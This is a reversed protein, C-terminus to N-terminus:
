LPEEKTQLYSSSTKMKNLSISQKRTINRKPPKAKRIISTLDARITDAEETTMGTLTTKIKAILDITPLAAPTVLFNMENELLEREDETINYTSLNIIWKSKDITTATQKNIEKQQNDKRKQYLTNCKKLQLEKTKELEHKYTKSHIEQMHTFHEETLTDSLNDTTQKVSSQLNKRIYHNEHIRTQLLLRSSKDLIKRSKPDQLKPKLYLDNTILNNHLSRLSYRLHNTYRACKLESRELERWQSLISEGYQEKIIKFINTNTSETTNM